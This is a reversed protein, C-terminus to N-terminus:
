ITEGAISEGSLETKNRDSNSFHKRASQIFHKLLLDNPSPKYFIGFSLRPAEEIKLIKLNNESPIMLEPLIALGFGADALVVSAEASSCFHIDAPNRGEALKWQLKAIEPDLTIPDCFILREDALERISLSEKEAPFCDKRCVCVLCSRQLEKFILKTNTGGGERIDLIVHATETELLHFLQEHPVVHLRPHLNSHQVSLDHLVETLLELQTYSSCGISFVEMPRDQSDSFRLKAQEAIAVMSKADSIFAQGEPTIEVLRTSRRFLKVNLESELMKIQHTIAPQSVNLQEAARAFSLFNAVALFCSLQFTNM